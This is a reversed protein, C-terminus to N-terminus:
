PWSDALSKIYRNRKVGRPKQEPYPEIHNASLVITSSEAAKDLNDHGGSGVEVERLKKPEQHQKEAQLDTYKSYLEGMNAKRLATPIRNIRLEIRTRLSQAQLAYQARLKRARETVVTIDTVTWLYRLSPALCGELQLNDILAQKQSETIGMVRKQPSRTPTRAPSQTPVVELRSSTDSTTSTRAKKTRSPAMVTAICTFPLTALLILTPITHKSNLYVFISVLWAFRAQRARPAEGSQAGCPRMVM